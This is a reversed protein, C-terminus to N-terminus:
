SVVTTNFVPQSSRFCAALSFLVYAAFRIRILRRHPHSSVTHKPSFGDPSKPPLCLRNSLQSEGMQLITLIRYQMPHGPPLPPFAISNLKGCASSRLRNRGRFSNEPVNGFFMHSNTNSGKKKFRIKKIQVGLFEKFDLCPKWPMEFFNLFVNSFGPQRQSQSGMQKKQIKDHYSLFCSMPSYFILKFASFSPYLVVMM